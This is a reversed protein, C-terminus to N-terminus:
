RQPKPVLTYHKEFAAFIEEIEVSGNSDSCWCSAARGSGTVDDMRADTMIKILASATLEEADPM